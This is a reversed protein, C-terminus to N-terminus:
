LSLIKGLILVLFFTLILNPLTLAWNSYIYCTVLVLFHGFTGLFVLIHIQFSKGCNSIQCLVTGATHGFATVVYTHLQM